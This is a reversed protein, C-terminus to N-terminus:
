ADGGLSLMWNWEDDSLSPSTAGYAHRLQVLEVEWSERSRGLVTEERKARERVKSSRISRRQSTAM